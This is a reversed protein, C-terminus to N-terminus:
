AVAEFDISRVIQRIEGRLAETARRWTAAEVVIRTGGIGVIWVRIRTGTRMALWCAGMCEDHPWTFFFGPDCGTKEHVTLVIRKADQGDVTMAAPGAVLETGPASAITNALAELSPGARVDLVHDCPVVYEGEPFSTWFVIAEADQPGAISKNLSFDTREWGTAASPAGITFPVGGVTLPFAHPEDATPAPLTSAPPDDADASGGRGRRDPESRLWSGITVAAVLGILVLVDRRRVTFRTPAQPGTPADVGDLHASGSSTAAIPETYSTHTGEAHTPATSTAVAAARDHIVYLPVSCNPCSAGDTRGHWDCRLCTKVVNGPPGSM